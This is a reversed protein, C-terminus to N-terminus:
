SGRRTVQEVHQNDKLQLLEAQCSGQKSATTKNSINAAQKSMGERREGQKEVRSQYLNGQDGGKM